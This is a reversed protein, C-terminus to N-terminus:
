LDPCDLGRYRTMDVSKKCAIAKFGSGCATHAAKREACRAVLNAAADVKENGTNVTVVQEGTVSVDVLTEDEAVAQASEEVVSGQEQAPAESEAWVPAVVLMGTLFVTRFIGIM